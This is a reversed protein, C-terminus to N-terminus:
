DIVSALIWLSNWQLLISFVMLFWRGGSLFQFGSLEKSWINYFFRTISVIFVGKDGTHRAGGCSFVFFPAAIWNIALM